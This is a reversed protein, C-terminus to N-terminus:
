AFSLKELGQVKIIRMNDHAVCVTLNKVDSGSGNALAEGSMADTVEYRSYWEIGAEAFPIQLTVKEAGNYPIVLFATDGSYRAYPQIVETGDTKVKCINVNRHCEPFYEFIEPNQRRIRIMQKVDEFLARKEPDNVSDWDVKNYFYSYYEAEGDERIPWTHNWEDGIYWLPIFPAFIALYGMYIRSGKMQAIRNDHNSLCYTYYRYTGGRGAKQSLISGIHHGEKISDVLNFGNLFNRPPPDPQGPGGHAQEFQPSLQELHYVGRRENACESMMLLKREPGYLLRRRIENNIAYGAFHATVGPNKEYVPEMDFRFGDCGSRVALETIQYIYWERFEENEWDFCCPDPSSYLGENTCWEPHKKFIDADPLTGWSTVDLFVRINRRHAEEIFGKFVEWGKKQETEGTLRPHVTDTGNHVYGFYDKPNMNGNDHVPTIYLGNVGMEQYHKLMKYAAQFTGEPTAVQLNVEAIILSKVWDPAGERDLTVESDPVWKPMLESNNIFLDNM